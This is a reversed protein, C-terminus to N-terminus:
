LYFSLWSHTLLLAGLDLFAQIQNIIAVSFAPPLGSWVNAVPFQDIKAKNDM